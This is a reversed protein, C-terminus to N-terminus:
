LNNEDVEFVSILAIDFPSFGMGQLAKEFPKWVNEVEDNVNYQDEIGWVVVVAKARRILKLPDKIAKAMRESKGTDPIESDNNKCLGLARVYDKEEPNHKDVDIGKINVAMDLQKLM